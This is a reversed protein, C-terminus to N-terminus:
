TNINRCAPTSLSELPLSQNLQLVLGTLESEDVTDSPKTQFDLVLRLILLLSTGVVDDKPIESASAMDLQQLVETLHLKSQVSATSWYRLTERLYATWSSM